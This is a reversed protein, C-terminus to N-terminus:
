SQCGQDLAALFNSVDSADTANDANWDGDDSDIDELLRILDFFDSKGDLSVDVPCIMEETFTDITVRDFSMSTSEAEFFVEHSLDNRPLEFRVLNTVDAGGFVSVADKRELEVVENPLFRGNLTFTDVDPEFGLTQVQYLVVTRFGYGLGFGPAITLPMNIGGFTYINGSSIIQSGSSEANSDFADFAPADGPLNGVVTQAQPANPGGPSQFFDWEAYLSLETVDRSWGDTGQSPVIFQAQSSCPALLLLCACRFAPLGQM